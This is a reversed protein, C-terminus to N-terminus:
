SQEEVCLEQQAYSTILLQTSVADLSHAIGFFLAPFLAPYAMEKAADECTAAVALAKVLDSTNELDTMASRQFNTFWELSKPSFREGIGELITQVFNFLSPCGSFELLEVQGAPRNAETEVPRRPIDAILKDIYSRYVITQGSDELAQRFEEATMRPRDQTTNNM